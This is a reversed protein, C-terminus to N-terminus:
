WFEAFFTRRLFDVGAEVQHSFSRGTVCWNAFAECNNFVISYLNEGLREYARLVTLDYDQNPHQVIEPSVGKCFKELDSMVIGCSKYHVVRGGGVYIGHHYYCGRWIKIHSGSQM